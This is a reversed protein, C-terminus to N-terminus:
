ETMEQRECEKVKQKEITGMEELEEASDLRSKDIQSSCDASRDPQNSSERVMRRISKLVEKLFKM